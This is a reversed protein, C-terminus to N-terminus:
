RAWDPAGARAEEDAREENRRSPGPTATTIRYM